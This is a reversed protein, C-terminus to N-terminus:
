AHPRHAAVKRSFGWRPNTSPRPRSLGRLFERVSETAKASLRVFELGIGSQRPCVKRESDTRIWKVDAEVRVPRKRGPLVFRLNVRDGVSAVYESAVFLGGFSINEIRGAHQVHGADINVALGIEARWWARKDHEATAGPSVGDWRGENRGGIRSAPAKPSGDVARPLPNFQILVLDADVDVYSVAERASSSAEAAEEPVRRKQLRSM